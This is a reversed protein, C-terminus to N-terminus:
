ATPLGCCTPPYKQLSSERAVSDRNGIALPLKLCFTAGYGPGDSRATLMGGLEKAALASDHLGFGHGKAKTTFGHRFIKAMNEESIGVGNDSIEVAAYGKGDSGVRLTLQKDSSKSDRLAHMANAILNVLIQLLRHKDVTVPPVDECEWAVAVDDRHLSADNLKLAAELIENLRVAEKVGSVRSHEQQMCVVEKIHDIGQMLGGMERLLKDREDDLHEALLKVYAPMQKGREDAALFDPLHDIHEDLLAALKSVGSIKSGRLEEMVLSASVNVSNLVNGVNHLVSTAVDAMGARRSAELLERNLRAVEADREKQETIDRVTAHLATKGNLGIRVLEVTVDFETGDPRKHKWEFSHSGREIVRVMVEKTKETSAKGDPQYEPSFDAPKHRRLEDDGACGFMDVAAPNCALFEGELTTLMISDRSSEFIARHKADSERLADEVRKREAIEQRLRENARSVADYSQKVRLAAAIRANLVDTNVPKPVYDDAGANLGAVVNEDLGRATVLIVPIPRTHPDEKLRQCVELGDMGPMMVDLLIVDPRRAAVIGLAERGSTSELVEHGGDELEQALLKVNDPVDDVVLIRAM